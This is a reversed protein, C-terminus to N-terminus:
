GTWKEDYEVSELMLGKAPALPGALSRKKQNLVSLVSEPKRKGLGIEMLTGSMIRVMHYLFGNGTFAIKVQEQEKSIQIQYITRVTSKKTEKISSFGMYDHTGCLLNAAQKMKEIDLEELVSVAYPYSFVNKEPSNWICYVYTKKVASKRSHFSLPVEEAASIRISMPLTQNLWQKMEKADIKKSTYFNAAQGLAHVGRDTRGSAKLDIKESLYSGITKELIGQITEDTNGQKQWGNFKSGDYQLIIRYNYKM